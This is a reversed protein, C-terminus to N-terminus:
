SVKEWKFNETQVKTIGGHKALVEDVRDLPVWGYVTKRPRKSEEAFELLSVERRSPFGLEVTKPEPTPSKGDWEGGLFPERANCYHGASYQISISFGDACRVRRRLTFRNAIKRINPDKHERVERTSATLFRDDKLFELTNM